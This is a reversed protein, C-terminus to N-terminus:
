KIIQPLERQFHLTAHTEGKAGRLLATHVRIGFHQLAKTTRTNEFYRFPKVAIGISGNVSHPQFM